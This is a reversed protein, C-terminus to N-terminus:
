VLNDRFFAEIDSKKPLYIIDGPTMFSPHAIHNVWLVIDGYDSIGYYSNILLDFRYIDQASVMYKLPAETFKFSNINFTFIDPYANGNSDSYATSNKITM